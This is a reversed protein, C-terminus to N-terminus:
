TKARFKCRCKTCTVLIRGKGRPVRLRQMCQPCTLHKYNRREDIDIVKSGKSRARAFIGKLWNEFRMYVALESRRRIFNRSLARILMYAVMVISIGQMIRTAMSVSQQFIVSLALAALSLFMAGFLLVRNLKDIGYRNGFLGM